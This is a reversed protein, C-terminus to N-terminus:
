HHCHKRDKPIESSVFSLNFLSTIPTAVIEASLKLFFPYTFESSNESDTPLKNVDQISEQIIPGKNVDTPLTNPKGGTASYNGMSRFLM